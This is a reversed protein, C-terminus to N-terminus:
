SAPVHAPSHQIWSPYYIIEGLFFDFILRSVQLDQLAATLARARSERVRANRWRVMRLIMMLCLGFEVMTTSILVVSSGPPALLSACHVAPLLTLLLVIGEVLVQIGESTPIVSPGDSAITMQKVTAPM